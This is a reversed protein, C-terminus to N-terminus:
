VVCELSPLIDVSRVGTACLALSSALKGYELTPLIETSHVCTPRACLALSSALRGCELSPLIEVNRVGTACVTSSALRASELSPLIEVNRVGTACVALSRALRSCCVAHTSNTCQACM